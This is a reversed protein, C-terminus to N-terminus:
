LTVYVGIAVFPFSVLEIYKRPFRRTLLSCVECFLLILFINYYLAVRAALAIINSLLNLCVSLTSLFIISYYSRLSLKNFEHLYMLSFVSFILLCLLLFSLTGSTKFGELHQTGFYYSYGLLDMFYLIVDQSYGVIFFSVIVGLELFIFSKTKINKIFFILIPLSFFSTRHFSIAIAFLFLSLIRSDKELALFSLLVFSLALYQRMTNITTHFYLAYFILIGLFPISSKKYIFNVLVTYIIIAHAFLFFREDSSIIACTQLFILYGEEIITYISKVEDFSDGRSFMNFIDLYVLTDVGETFDRVTALFCFLIVCVISMINYKKEGIKFTATDAIFLLAFLFIVLVVFYKSM